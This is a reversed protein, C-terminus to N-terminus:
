TEHRVAALERKAETLQRNLDALAAKLLTIDDTLEVMRLGAHTMAEDFADQCQPCVTM